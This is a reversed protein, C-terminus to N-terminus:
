SYLLRMNTKIDVLNFDLENPIPKADLWNTLKVNKPNSLYAAKIFAIKDSSLGAFIVDICNM